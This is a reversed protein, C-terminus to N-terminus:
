PIVYWLASGVDFVVDISGGVELTYDDGGPCVLMAGVGPAQSAHALVIAGAEAVYAMVTKRLVDGEALAAFSLLKTNEETARLRVIDADAWDVPEFKTVTGSVEVTLSAPLADGMTVITRDNAPDDQVVVGGGVFCLTDRQPLAPQGVQVVRKYGILDDLFGM